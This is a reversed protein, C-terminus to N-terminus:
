LAAKAAAIKEALVGQGLAGFVVENGVVYSPTGTIALKNALDYTSSIAELITPDKMGERLRAEDAGLSLAIKIAAAETARGQGGLLASHFEGYKEPMMKHFAMSVVSAKQSDPGLIPFEKLVFRLDPDAKTLAQMDEMARKCFGCNYDYFEVITVKGQPNGVVGDFASNFIADKADKIVGLHALTQEEKQKAELADQVELLVEPNKLLYDRVIAEIEMRDVKTAAPAADVMKTATEANATEPGGAVFGFALLACAIAATTGLLTARKMM